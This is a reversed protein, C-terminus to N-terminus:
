GDSGSGHGDYGDSCYADSSYGDSGYADQYGDDYGVDYRGDCMGDEYGDHYCEDRYDDRSNDHRDDDRHCEDHNDDQPHDDHPGDDDQTDEAYADDAHDTAGSDYARRLCPQPASFPACAGGYGGSDSGSSGYGSGGYGGGGFGGGGGYGGGGNYCSSGYQYGRYPPPQPSRPYPPSPRNIPPTCPYPSCQQNNLPRPPPHVRQNEFARQLAINVLRRQNAERQRERERADRTRQADQMALAMQKLNETMELEELQKIRRAIAEAQQQKTVLQKALVSVRARALMGRAHVQLTTSASYRQKNHQYAHWASAITTTARIRAASHKEARKQSRMQRATLLYRQHADDYPMMRRAMQVTQQRFNRRELMMRVMRTIVAAAWAYRFASAISAKVTLQASLTSLKVQVHRRAIIQRWAYRQGYSQIIRAAQLRCSLRDSDTNHQDPDDSNYRVDLQACRIRCLMGRAHASIIKAAVDLSSIVPKVNVQQKPTSQQLVLQAESLWSPEDDTDDSIDCLDDDTLELDPLILKYVQMPMSSLTSLQDSIVNAPMFHSPSTWPDSVTSMRTPMSAPAHGDDRPAALDIQPVQPDQMM